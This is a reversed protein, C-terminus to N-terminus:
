LILDPKPWFPAASTLLRAPVREVSSCPASLVFIEARRRVGAAVPIARPESM